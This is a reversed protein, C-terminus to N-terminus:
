HQRPRVPKRQSQFFSSWEILFLLFLWFLVFVFCFLFLIPLPPLFFLFFVWLKLQIKTKKVHCAPVNIQKITIAPTIGRTVWSCCQIHFWLCSSHSLYIYFSLVLRLSRWVHLSQTTLGRTELGIHWCIYFLLIVFGHWAFVVPAFVPPSDRLRELLFGLCNLKLSLMNVHSLWPLKHSLKWGKLLVLQKFILFLWLFLNFAAAGGAM